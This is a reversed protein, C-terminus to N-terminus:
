NLSNRRLYARAASLVANTPRLRSRQPLQEKPPVEANKSAQRPKITAFLNLPQVAVPSFAMRPPADVTTEASAQRCPTEGVVTQQTRAGPIPTEGVVSTALAPKSMPTEGVVTNHTAHRIPTEAVVEQQFSISRKKRNALPTTMICDDRQRKEGKGKLAKKMADNNFNQVTSKNTSNMSDSITLQQRKKTESSQRKSISVTSHPTVLKSRSSSKSKSNNNTNTAPTSHDDDLLKSMHRLSNSRHFHSGVFRNKKLAILRRRPKEEVVCKKVKVRKKKKKVLMIKEDMNAKDKTLFPNALEFENLVHTVVHPLKRWVRSSFCRRTLFAGFTANAPLCFAARSLTSSLHDLLVTEKQEHTAALPTSSCPKSDKKRKKKKNPKGSITVLKPYAMEVTSYGHQIWLEVLLVAHWEINRLLCDATITSRLTTKSMKTQERFLRKLLDKLHEEGQSAVWKRALELSDEEPDSNQVDTVASISDTEKHRSNDLVEGGRTTLTTKNTWADRWQQWADEKALKKTENETMTATTKQTPTLRFTNASLSLAPTLSAIQNGGTFHNRLVNTNHCPFFKAGDSQGDQGDVTHKTMQRLESTTKKSHCTAIQLM